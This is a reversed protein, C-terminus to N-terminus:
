IEHRIKEFKLEFYYKGTWEVVLDCDINKYASVTNAPVQLVCTDTNIDFGCNVCPPVTNLSIISTLGSCGEFTSEGIATVSYMTGNNNVMDPIVIDKWYKGSHKDDATVEVTDPSTIKYYITKGTLM